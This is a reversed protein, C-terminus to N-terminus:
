LWSDEPANLWPVATRDYLTNLADLLLPKRATMPVGQERWTRRKERAIRLWDGLDQPLVADLAERVLATLAPADGSTSIAITVDARRVVGSLYASANEPDDVANVFVRRAEAAAAVDRNVDRTAAAVVLWAGDLDSPQFPRRVIEVGDTAAIEAVVLPSVVRVVAGATVLQHLKGAAVSGGGVLLVNRGTLDLFLPILTRM